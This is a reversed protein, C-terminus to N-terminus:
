RDKPAIGSNMESEPWPGARPGTHCRMSITKVKTTISTLSTRSPWTYVFRKSSGRKRPRQIHFALFEFGEDLHAIRRTKEESLHLGV